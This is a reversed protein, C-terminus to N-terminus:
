RNHEHNGDPQVLAKPSPEARSALGTHDRAACLQIQASQFAGDTLALAHRIQDTVTKSRADNEIVGALDSIVVGM